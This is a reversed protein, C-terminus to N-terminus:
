AQAAPAALLLVGASASPRERPPKAVLNVGEGIRQAQGHPENQRSTLRRVDGLRNGEHLVNASCVCQQGVFPIVGIGQKVPKPLTTDRGHYRGFGAAFHLSATVPVHVFFAMDDFAHEALEFIETANGGAILFLGAMEHFHQGESGNQQPQASVDVSGLKLM